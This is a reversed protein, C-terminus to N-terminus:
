EFVEVAERSAAFRRGSRDVADVGIGLGGADAEFLGKSSGPSGAPRASNRPSCIADVESVAMRSRQPKSRATSSSSLRSRASSAM